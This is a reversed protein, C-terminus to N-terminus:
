ACSIGGQPKVRGLGNNLAQAPIASQKHRFGERDHRGPHEFFQNPRIILGAGNPDHFEKQLIEGLLFQCIKRRFCVGKSLFKVRFGNRRDMMHRLPCFDKFEPM